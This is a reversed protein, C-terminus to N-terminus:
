PGRSPPLTGLRPPHMELDEARRPHRASHTLHIQPGRSPLPASGLSPTDPTRSEAPTGLRPLTCKLDEARCPHRASHLHIQPGRSPLPASGLSPADSTRPEAPTGLRTFTYRPDEARRPVLGLLPHMSTRPEAPTGLRTLTYGLDEDRCGVEASQAEMSVAEGGEVGGNAERALRGEEKTAAICSGMRRSLWVDEEVARAWHQRGGGRRPAHRKFMLMFTSSCVFSPPLAHVTRPVYLTFFFFSCNFCLLLLIFMQGTLKSKRCPSTAAAKPKWVYYTGLLVNELEDDVESSALAIQTKSAQFQHYLDFIPSFDFSIVGQDLRPAGRRAYKWHHFSHHDHFKMHTSKVPSGEPGKALLKQLAIHRIDHM